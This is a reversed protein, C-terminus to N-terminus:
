DENLGGIRAQIRAKAKKGRLKVFLNAFIETQRVEIM